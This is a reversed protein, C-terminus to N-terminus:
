GACTGNPVKVEPMALVPTIKNEYGLDFLMGESMIGFMEKPKMNVVFLAQRNEIEKPNERENKIGALIVRKFDGFDVTLKVLDNSKEIDEVKIIEGVRIDIKAIDNFSVNSKVEKSLFKTM